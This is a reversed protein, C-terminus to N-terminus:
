KEMAMERFQSSSEILENYTGEKIIRGADMLYLHDCNMVTTLRHAIMIITREGKLNEIANIILKETINDLASTAEDMVLVQPNHYLARAIGVRQRQGGSLRVGSEGIETNLGDPLKGVLEELQALKVAQWVKEDDIESSRLGFAINSRLTEDSLYIFQPIYGINQQWGSLHDQINTDDAFIHGQDPKLLGLLLDVVTTKGAGSAGTFAVAQGKPITFTVGNLAKEETGPYSYHINKAQISERLQLREHNKRDSLFKRRHGSLELMDNYVPEIAVISYRLNTLTSTIKQVAPMLRIAAMAFLSLIPIIASIPRGQFVMIIAILMIGGVAITEVVPKPIRKLFSKIAEMRANREAAKKFIHIFENERNLVRADKIGGVGQNVAKIKARRLQQAEKGYRKMRKQTLLLFGGVAGGLIAFTALTILPEIILLFLIIGIVMVTEKAMEMFPKLVQVVLMKVEQNTNRILEATNRQLHFTYPAQMYSSMLAHSITFERRHIFKSELYFYFILYLNKVLFIGVLGVAGRILLDRSTEVGLASLLREAPEYQMIQEPDAVISVFVPIMGIGAVELVAAILMMLFLIVLKVKDGKPLLYLIKRFYTHLTSKTKPRRARRAEPKPSRADPKPSRAEPTPSRSEPNPRYITPYYNVM